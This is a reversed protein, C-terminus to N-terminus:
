AVGVRTRLEISRTQCASLLEAGGNLSIDDADPISVVALNALNPSSVVRVFDDVDFCCSECGNLDFPISLHKFGPLGKAAALATM